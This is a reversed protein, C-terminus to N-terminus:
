WEGAKKTKVAICFPDASVKWRYVYKEVDGGDEAKGILVLRKLKGEVDEQVLNLQDVSQMNGEVDELSFDTVEKPCAERESAETSKGHVKVDKTTLFSADEGGTVKNSSKLLKPLGESRPEKKKGDEKHVVAKSEGGQAGKKSLGVGLGNSLPSSFRSSLGIKLKKVGKDLEGGLGKRKRAPSSVGKKTTTEPPLYLLKPPVVQGARTVEMAGGNNKFVWKDRQAGVGYAEVPMSEFKRGSFFFDNTSLGKM